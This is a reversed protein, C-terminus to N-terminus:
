ESCSACRPQGSQSARTPAGPAPAAPLVPAPEVIAPPRTEASGIVDGGDRGPAVSRGKLAWSGLFFGLLLLVIVKTLSRM